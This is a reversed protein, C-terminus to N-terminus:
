KKAAAVLDDFLRQQTVDDAASVEPHWQVAVLWPHGAAELAEIIGDPALASVTLGGGVDKIAQHHGSFTVVHDAQMIEGLLSGPHVVVPQQTWGGDESRHIDEDLIDPIHESMTGGLAVNLIQMGRCICLTPHTERDMVEQALALEFTDRDPALRTLSPHAANGGYAAPHIDAGGTIIMGDVMHFIEDWSTEGPPLLVPVGGARRVADVYQAPIAFFDDYFKYDIKLEHRGYTTLGIIPKM